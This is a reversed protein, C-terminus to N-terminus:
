AVGDVCPSKTAQPPHHGSSVRPHHLLERVQPPHEPLDSCLSPFGLSYKQFTHARWYTHSEKSFLEGFFNPAKPKSVTDKRPM